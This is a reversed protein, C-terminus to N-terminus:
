ADQMRPGVEATDVANAGTWGDTGGDSHRMWSFVLRKPSAVLLSSSLESMLHGMVSCIFIQCPKPCSEEEPSTIAFARYIRPHPESPHGMKTKPM